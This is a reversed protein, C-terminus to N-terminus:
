VATRLQHRERLEGIFEDIRDRTVHPMAVFRFVPVTRRVLNGDWDPDTLDEPFLDSPICFKGRLGHNEGETLALRLDDSLWVTQINLRGPYFRVCETGDANFESLRARLYALNEMCARVKSAYGDRGLTHMATWCAAAIAGSRSGSVTSDAHSRLYEAPTETHRLFGKRCLFLGASYPAYGMKHMDVVMSSVLDNEFGFRCTPALFPLVMGGFAADVHVYVGFGDRGEFEERLSQLMACVDSVPDVSGLNTTGAHLVVIFRRYGARYYSRIMRELVQPEVEGNRDTPVEQFVNADAASGPENAFLRAFHKLFSYHGLFSTLVVIGQRGHYVPQKHWLRNRGLWLGHDNGETGGFCIYGDIQREPDSAGLLSAASYVFERELEQTGLFGFETQHAGTHCGINNAQEVAFLRHADMAEILPTTGPFGVVSQGRYSINRKAAEALRPELESFPVGREPWIWIRDNEKKM